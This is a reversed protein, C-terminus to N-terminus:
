SGRLRKIVETIKGAAFSIEEPTNFRSLSFRASSGADKKGLGMATLVHSPEPNASSCASGTSFAIEPLGSILGAAPVDKFLINTTNPLRNRVSGNIYTDPLLTLQQELMTRMSSVSASYEMWGAEAISCAEGFGAICPVNLTGSRMGSEHGGGHFMPILKVRPNKRRVFLAGAGKPGCFKHASFCLLDANIENVDIRIKGASQTADCFFLINHDRAIKGVEEVPQMVGTENNASMVSILITQPTIANLLDDTDILGERSVPLLTIEAGRTKLYALTDLVSSHETVVSIIHNGKKVYAEFVGKLALNVAETSGSTFIIEGPESGALSAVQSRAYTVAEEAIWGFAHTKSAANGYKSTYYPMMAELVRPDVPTTSNNDLYVPITTM